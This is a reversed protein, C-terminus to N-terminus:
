EECLERVCEEYVKFSMRLSVEAGGGHMSSLSVCSWGVSRRLDSTWGCESAAGGWVGVGNWRTKERKKEERVEAWKLSQMYEIWWPLIERVSTFGYGGGVDKIQQRRLWDIPKPKSKHLLMVLKPRPKSFHSTYTAIQTKTTTSRLNQTTVTSM